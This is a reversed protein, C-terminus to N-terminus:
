GAVPENFNALNWKADYGATHMWAVFFRSVLWYEGVFIPRTSPDASSVDGGGDDISIHLCNTWPETTWLTQCDENNIYTSTYTVGGTETTVVDGPHEYGTEVTIAIPPDFMQYTGDPGSWGHIQTSGGAMTSWMVGGLFTDNDDALYQELTVIERGDVVTTPTVQVMSMNDPVADQDENAYVSEGIAVANFYDDMKVGAYSTGGGTCAMLLSFLLM